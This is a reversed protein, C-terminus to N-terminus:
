AGGRGAAGTPMFKRGRGVYRLVPGRGRRLGVQSMRTRHAIAMAMATVSTGRATAAAVEAAEARPRVTSRAAMRWAELLSASRRQRGVDNSADRESFM